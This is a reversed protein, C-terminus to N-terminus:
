IITLPARTSIEAIASKPRVRRSVGPALKPLQRNRACGERSGRYQNRCNGIESAGKTLGRTSIEAIASKPRLTSQKMTQSAEASFAQPQLAQPCFHSKRGIEPGSRTESIEKKLDPYFIPFLNTMNWFVVPATANCPCSIVEGSFEVRTDSEAIALKPRVGRAVGPASKPLQRNRVGVQICVLGAVLMLMTRIKIGM